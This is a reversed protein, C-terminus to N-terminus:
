YYRSASCTYTSMKVTSYIKHIESTLRCDRFYFGHVDKPLQGSVLCAGYESVQALRKVIEHFLIGAFMEVYVTYCM